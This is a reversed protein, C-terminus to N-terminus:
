SARQYLQREAASPCHEYLQKTCNQLGDQTGQLMTQSATQIETADKLQNFSKIVCPALDPFYPLHSVGCYWAQHTVAACAAASVNPVTKCYSGSKPQWCKKVSLNGRM